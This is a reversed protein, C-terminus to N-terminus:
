DSSTNEISQQVAHAFSKASSSASMLMFRTIGTRLVAAGMHEMVTRAYAGDPFVADDLDIPCIRELASIAGEGEIECIVWADTQRTTYAANKLAVAANTAASGDPDDLILLIQDATNRVAYIGNASTSMRSDPLDLGLASKFAKVLPKEGDLPIAVSLIHSEALERFRIGNTNIGLGALPSRPILQIDAM